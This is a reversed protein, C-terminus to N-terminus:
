PIFLYCHPRSVPKRLRDHYAVFEKYRKWTTVTDDPIAHFVKRYIETKVVVTMLLEIM